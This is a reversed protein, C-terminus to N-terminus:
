AERTEPIFPRLDFRWRGAGDKAAAIKGSKRWTYLTAVSIKLIRAATSPEVTTLIEQLQPSM